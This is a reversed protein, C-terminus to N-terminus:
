DAHHPEKEWEEIYIHDVRLYPLIILRRDQGHEGQYIEFVNTDPKFLVHKVPKDLVWATGDTRLVTVRYRRTEPHNAISM